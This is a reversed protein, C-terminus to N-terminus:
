ITLETNSLNMSPIESISDKKFLNDLCTGFGLEYIGHIDSAITM